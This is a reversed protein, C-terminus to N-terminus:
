KKEKEKEIEAMIEDRKKKAEVDEPNPIDSTVLTPKKETKEKDWFRQAESKGEVDLEHTTIIKSKEKPPLGQSTSVFTQKEKKDTMKFGGYKSKHFV